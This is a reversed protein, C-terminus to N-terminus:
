EKCLNILVALWIESASLSNEAAVTFKNLSCIYKEVISHCVLVYVKKACLIQKNLNRSVIVAGDWALINVEERLINIKQIINHKRVIFSTKCNQKKKVFNESLAFFYFGM